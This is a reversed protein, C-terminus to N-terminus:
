EFRSLSKFRRDANLEKIRGFGVSDRVATKAFFSRLSMLKSEGHKAIVKDLSGLMKKRKVLNPFLSKQENKPRLGAVTIAILVPTVEKGLFQRLIIHKAEAFIEKSDNTEYGLRHSGGASLGELSNVYASVSSGELNAVRLRSAVMDSLRSLTPMLLEKKRVSRPLTYMHGMSRIPDEKFGEKFSNELQGMNWLHLGAIGFRAILNEKPFENLEVLSKIGLGRLNREQRFGIGPIDILKISKLLEPKEEPRFVVLGDPKQRDSAIKATLKNWGVGVSVRFWEGVEIKIRRKIERAVNVAEFYPDVNMWKGGKSPKLINCAKTIDLFAEDISYLEVKDTYDELLTIFAKTYHRYRDPHTKTLVIKPYIRQAEWVPTGTKIGWRKAEVSPAIIIGGLHECVGLPVGRWKPNDQQEVSAFYSNFDIHLIIKESIRM